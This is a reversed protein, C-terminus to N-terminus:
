HGLVGDLTILSGTAGTTDVSISVTGSGITDGFKETGGNGVYTGTFTTRGSLSSGTTDEYTGSVLLNVQSGNNLALTLFGSAAFALGGTGNLLFTNTDYQIELTGSCSGVINGSIPITGSV